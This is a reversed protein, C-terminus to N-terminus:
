KLYHKLALHFYREPLEEQKYNKFTGLFLDARQSLSDLQPTMERYQFVTRSSDPSPLSTLLLSEYPLGWTFQLLDVPLDQEKVLFKPEPHERLLAKEWNLRATWPEHAMYIHTVRLLAMLILTPYVWKRGSFGPLGDPFLHFLWPLVAFIGLPLYLNELYFQRDGEYFPINVLLIYAPMFLLCWLAPLWKKLRLLNFLNVAYLVPILYYDRLCWQWFDRNSKINLWNPWLKGFAEARSLSMADYWDLKLIKYKLIFTLLLWLIGAAWVWKKQRKTTTLVMFGSCFVMAYMVMPHFYFATVVGAIWLPWQWIKIERLSNKSDTWAMLVLLFALGQPAESLWYFTHTTMLVATLAIALAWRWQKLVLHTFLFLFFYYLVHGISYSLLVGKLSLGIGQAVWPFFQTGVAGFRGSQVQLDGTRIIHFSQFAMDSFIMREQYFLVAMIGLVSFIGAGLWLTFRQPSTM